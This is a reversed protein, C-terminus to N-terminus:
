PRAESCPLYNQFDRDINKIHEVLWESIMRNIKIVMAVNTGGKTADKKMVALRKIFDAHLKKHQIIKPYSTLAMYAEEDAFHKITYKELFNLVKTVEGTGEGRNCADFLRDIQACLEKHEKDIESIGIAYNDKWTM